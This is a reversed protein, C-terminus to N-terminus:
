EFVRIILLKNDVLAGLMLINHSQIGTTSSAAYGDGGFMYLLGDTGSWFCSDERSGPVGTEGISHFTGLQNTSSSGSVWTWTSTNPNFAWM